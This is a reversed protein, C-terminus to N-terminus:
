ATFSYDFKADAHTDDWSYARATYTHTSGKPQDMFLNAELTWHVNPDKQEKWSKTAIVKNNYDLLKLVLLGDTIWPHMWGTVKVPDCLKYKKKDTSVAVTGM